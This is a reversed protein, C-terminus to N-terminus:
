KIEPIWIMKQTFRRKRFVLFLSNLYQQLEEKPPLNRDLVVDAVHFAEALNLTPQQLFESRNLPRHLAFVHPVRIQWVPQHRDAESLM